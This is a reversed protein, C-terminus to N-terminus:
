DDEAVEESAGPVVADHIKRYAGRNLSLNVHMDEGLELGFEDALTHVQSITDSRDTLDRLGSDNISASQTTAGSRTHYEGADTNSGYGRKDSWDRAEAIAEVLEVVTAHGERREYRYPPADSRDVAWWEKSIHNSTFRAGVVEMDALTRLARRVSSPAFESRDGVEATSLFVRKSNWLRYYVDRATPYRTRNNSQTKSTIEADPTPQDKHLPPLDHKIEGVWNRITPTSIDYKCAVEQQTLLDRLGIQGAVYRLVAAAISPACGHALLTDYHDHLQEAVDRRHHEVQEVYDLNKDTM